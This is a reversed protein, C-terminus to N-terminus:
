AYQGGSGTTGAVNGPFYTPAAGGTSIVGNTTAEYRKGTASGSFTYFAPYALGLVYAACFANAFAPTGTVTVTLSAGFM